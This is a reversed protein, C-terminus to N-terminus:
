KIKKQLEWAKTMSDVNKAKTLCSMLCVTLVVILVIVMIIVILIAFRMKKMLEQTGDIMVKDSEDQERPKSDFNYGIKVESDSASIAAQYDSIRDDRV